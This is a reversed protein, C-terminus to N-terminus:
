CGDMSILLARIERGPANRIEFERHSELSFELADGEFLKIKEPTNTVVEFNGDACFLFHRGKEVPFKGTEIARMAVAVVDRRYIIGLDVIAGDPEGDLSEAGDFAFPQMPALFKGGIKLGRGKWVALWRGYGDFKSFPSPQSIEATSVRWDFTGENLKAGTPSIAVETTVGLGNKWPMSPM